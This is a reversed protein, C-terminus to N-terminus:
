RKGEVAVRPGHMFDSQGLDNALEAESRRRDAPSEQAKDLGYRQFLRYLSQLSVSFDSGIVKRERAVKLLVPLSAEPIERKCRYCRCSPKPM